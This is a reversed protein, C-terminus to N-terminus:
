TQGHSGGVINALEAMIYRDSHCRMKLAAKRNKLIAQAVRYREKVMNRLKSQEDHM